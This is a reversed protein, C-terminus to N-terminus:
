NCPHCITGTIKAKKLEPNRFPRKDESIQSNNYNKGGNKNNYKQNNYDTITRVPRVNYNHQLSFSWCESGSAFGIIWAQNDTILNNKLTSSWYFGDNFGVTKHSNIYIKELEYKDPLRWGEGINKYSRDADRWNMSGLDNSYVELSGIIFSQSNSKKIIKLNKILFNKELVIYNKHYPKSSFILQIFSLMILVFFFFKTKM